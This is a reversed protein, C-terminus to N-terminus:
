PQFPAVVELCVSMRSVQAATGRTPLRQLHAMRLLTDTHGGYMKVRGGDVGGSQMSAVAAYALYVLLFAARFATLM